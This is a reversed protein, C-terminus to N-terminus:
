PSLAVCSATIKRPCPASSNVPGNSGGSSSNCQSNLAILYAPRTGTRSTNARALDTRMAPM